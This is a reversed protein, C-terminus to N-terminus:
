LNWSGDPVGIGPQYDAGIMDDSTVDIRQKGGDRAMADAIQMEYTRMDEGYDLGKAQKFRWVLGLEMLNESLVGTDTDAAWASQGTGGSSQCWNRSQYEFAVIRGATPAPILYLNGLRIRYRGYPGTIPQAQYAQWRQPSVPGGVRVDQTRDWITENIIYEFGSAITTMVGQLEAALTTHTAEAQLATWPYRKALSQGEKNALAFLQRIQQDTSGAVAAPRPVGITDAANQVLALLTM